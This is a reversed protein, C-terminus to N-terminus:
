RLGYFDFYIQVTDRNDNSHLTMKHNAGLIVQIIQLKNLLHKTDNMLHLDVGM